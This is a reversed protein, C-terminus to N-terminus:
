KSATPFVYGADTRECVVAKGIDTPAYLLRTGSEQAVDKALREAKEAMDPGFSTAVHNGNELMWHIVGDSHKVQRISVTISNM